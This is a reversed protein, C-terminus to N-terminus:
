YPTSDKHYYRNRVGAPLDLDIDPYCVADDSKRSGVVLLLVDADSENILHHGDALGKPFAICDGPGLREPGANTVLTPTGELVMVFEDEESHWHRQSSWAGPALRILNVGFDTLGGADGLRQSSRGAVARAFPEPYGTRSVFPLANRDIKPM